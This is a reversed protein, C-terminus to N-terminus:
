AHALSRAVPSSKMPMITQLQTWRKRAKVATREATRRAREATQLERFANEKALELAMAQEHAQIEHTAWELANRQNVNAPIKLPQMTEQLAAGSGPTGPVYSLLAEIFAKLQSIQTAHKESVYEIALSSTLELTQMAQIIDNIYKTKISVQVPQRLVVV